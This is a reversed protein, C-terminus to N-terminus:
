LEEPVQLSKNHLQHLCLEGAILSLRGSCQFSDLGPYGDEPNNTHWLFNVKWRELLNEKFGAASNYM